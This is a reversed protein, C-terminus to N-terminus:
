EVEREQGTRLFAIAAVALALPLVDRYAPGLTLAGLDLSAIATEFVGLALGAIFVRRTSGFGALLAAALGKLGLLAGTDVSIVTGATTAIAALGAVVGALAFASALLAEVPLGIARAAWLDSSIAQLARGYSTRALLWGTSVALAVGVALVFFTRVQLSAGAVSVVGGTGLREFGFPDPVVYGQRVFSAALLGRVAFATAVMAGVWGAVSGRSLFPRIAGGYLAAGAAGAVLLGAGVALLFVGASLNSRTVPGTGASVFLAAFVSLGVLEGLAFHVVGTLRYVLSYGLAVLGYGAGAALGTVLVQVFLAM